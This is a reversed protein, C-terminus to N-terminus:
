SIVAISFTATAFRRPNLVTGTKPGYATLITSNKFATALMYDAFSGSRNQDDTVSCPLTYGNPATNAAM